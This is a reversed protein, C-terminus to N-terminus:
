GERLTQLPPHVVLPWTAALGALGIGLASAGLGVLWLGPNFPYDLGFLERAILWGTAGACLSALLGALLGLTFFEIGVAQLLARRRLGLTRLIASEQRRHERSAQIGAALVLLGAVLTFAFVYEVAQAGRTIIERVQTMLASVDIVTVAPFRGVLRSLVPERGPPLHFSTIYTTPYGQLLGPTGIVFFNPRFSDWQVRRLSAVRGELERGAIRFRLRDGRRIGLTRALEQEVSFLPEDEQGPQWWRGAVITNDPALEMGYSLNFDRAVLRRARDDSYDDIRVRRDGIGTLRARLMPHFGADPLGEAALFSQLAQVQDPQINILFQNPAREPISRDWADLLDLRVVALLLLALIGLGFGALQLSTMAPNRALGALGYRWIGHGHRRLPTLLWVLLRGGALLVGLTVLTGGIVLGALKPEGAQWLMLLAIALLATLGTLWSSLPPPALDRRLVRLPPVAGLRLMPPLAFGLLSILATGLGLLLPAPGAAPLPAGFWDALMGALLFQALWGLLSGALAAMLGLLLLRLVLTQLILGRSAGLCRLIATADAQRELFRHGSLAIAAAAVLVAMLSALALFRGGRDLARRLQPRANSTHVLSLGAPLDRRAWELYRNVAARDGAVLLRHDVRSAPTVLGTAPLDALAMLVGPGIRFLNAAETSDRSLVRSVTFRSRGLELTAGPRLGLSDFVRAQAWLRGPEPGHQVPQGASGPSKRVRLEGRLPYDPGVAKVEVLLTRDGNVLVSPFRLTRTTQLGLRRAEDTYRPPIPDHSSLQLDAALVQSAQLAMARDVRDTFFGVATVAAVAVVLALGLLRLEPHRWDRRFLRLAFRWRNM